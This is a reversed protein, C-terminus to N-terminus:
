LIYGDFDKLQLSDQNEKEDFVHKAGDLAEVWIGEEIEENAEEDEPDIAVWAGNERKFTGDKNIVYLGLVNDAGDEVVLGLDTMKGGTYVGFALGAVRRILGRVVKVAEEDSSFKLGAYRKSLEESDVPTIVYSGREEDRNKFTITTGDESVSPEFEEETFEVGMHGDWVTINLGSQLLDVALRGEGSPLTLLFPGVAYTSLAGSLHLKESLEPSDTLTMM